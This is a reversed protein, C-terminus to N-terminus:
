FEIPPKVGKLGSLASWSIGKLLRSSLLTKQKLELRSRVGWTCRSHLGSVGTMVPSSCPTEPCLNANPKNGRCHSTLFGSLGTVVRFSVLSGQPLLLPVKLNGDCNSLFALSGALGRPFGRSEGRLTLHLGKGSCHRSVFGANVRSVRFPLRFGNHLELLEGVSQDGSSLIVSNRLM